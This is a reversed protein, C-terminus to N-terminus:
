VPFIGEVSCLKTLCPSQHPNRHVHIRHGWRVHHRKGWIPRHLRGGEFVPPSILIDCHSTSDNTPAIRIGPCKPSDLITGFKSLFWLVELALRLSHELKAALTFLTGVGNTWGFGVQVTYEGGGGAVDIDFMSIKEFMNGTDNVSNSVELDERPLRSLLGPISGGTSYRRHIHTLSTFLLLDRQVFYISVM